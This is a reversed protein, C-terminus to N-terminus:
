TKILIEVETKSWLLVSFEIGGVSFKYPAELSALLMLKQSSVLDPRIFDFIVFFSPDLNFM